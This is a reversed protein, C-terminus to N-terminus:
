KGFLVTHWYITDAWYVYFGLTEQIYQPATLPISSKLDFLLSQYSTTDNYTELEFTLRALKKDLEILQILAPSPCNILISDIISTPLTDRYNEAWLLSAYRSESFFLHHGPVDSESFLYNIGCRTETTLPTSVYKNYNQDIAPKVGKLHDLLYNKCFVQSQLRILLRLSDNSDSNIFGIGSLLPYKLSLKKELQDLGSSLYITANLFCSEGPMGSCSVSTDYQADYFLCRTEIELTDFVWILDMGQSETFNPIRIEENSINKVKFRFRFPAFLNEVTDRALVDVTYQQAFLKSSLFTLIILAILYRM